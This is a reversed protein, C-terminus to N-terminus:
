FVLVRTHTVFHASAKSLRALLAILLIAMGVLAISLLTWDDRNIVALLIGFIFALRFGICRRRHLRDSGLTM